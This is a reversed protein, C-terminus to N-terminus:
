RIVNIAAVGFALQSFIQSWDLLGRLASPKITKEPVVITDGPYLKLHQFADTWASKVVTRSVVAGNARVVFMRKRDADTNPGGAQDLFWRVEGHPRYVFSNQNFVAGMVNVTSPVSPVLFTDGNELKIDPIAVPGASSPTFQFVIRGNARIQQLQAILAQESGQAANVSALDQSNSTPSSALALLGRQMQLTMEHVSEDIRRQQLIRTSQRTFVSGYLYANPTLGGAREVLTRLTDGPQVSYTGAHAFEGELRVFTTQEAIPVHIDSQSFVTVVDGPQLALDQSADHGNVLHGLDFPILNTKLTTPDAREIVAYSWDIDPVNVKVVTRPTAKPTLPENQGDSGEALASQQGEFAPNRQANPYMGNQGYSGNQGYPAGQGYPNQGNAAGEGYLAGASDQAMGAQAEGDVTLEFREQAVVRELKELAPARGKDFQM